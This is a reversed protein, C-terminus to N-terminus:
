ISTANNSLSIHNLAELTVVMTDAHLDNMVQEKSAQVIVLIVHVLDIKIEIKKLVVFDLKKHHHLSFSCNLSM